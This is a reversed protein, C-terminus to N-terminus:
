MIHKAFLRDTQHFKSGEGGGGEFYPYREPVALLPNIKTEDM